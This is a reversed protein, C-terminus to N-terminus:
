VTGNFPAAHSSKPGLFTAKHYFQGRPTQTDFLPLHITERSGIESHKPDRTLAPAFIGM